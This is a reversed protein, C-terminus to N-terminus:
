MAFNKPVLSRLDVFLGADEYNTELEDYAKRYWEKRTEKTEVTEKKKQTRLPVDLEPALAERAAKMTQYLPFIYSYFPGFANACLTDLTVINGYAYESIASM